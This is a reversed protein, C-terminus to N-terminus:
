YKSLTAAFVNYNEDERRCYVAFEVTKFCYLYDALAIRAATAVVRPPNQFAGCGFAGLILTEARNECAVDLVRRLRKVHLNGLEKESIRVPKGDGPNMANSPKPRLNPAAITIVDVAYWEERPLLEPMATDSKFVLVGPTYICDDNHLSDGAERHPRYFGDWMVQQRLAEYLTSTRCLCEEQANAGRVVGGGPNTASAFNMVCVRDGPYGAAAEFSRKRSVLVRAPTDYRREGRHGAVRDGELILRQSRVSEAAAKALEPDTEWMRKTDQFIEVNQTRDM